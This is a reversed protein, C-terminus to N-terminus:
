QRELVTSLFQLLGASSFCCHSTGQAGWRESEFDTQEEFLVIHRKLRQRRVESTPNWFMETSGNKLENIHVEGDQSPFTFSDMVILFCLCFNIRVFQLQEQIIILSVQQHPPKKGGRDWLIEDFAEQFNRFPILCPMALFLPQM